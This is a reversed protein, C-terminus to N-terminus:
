ILGRAIELLSRLYDAGDAPMESLGIRSRYEFALEAYDSIMDSEALWNGIARLEVWLPTYDNRRLDEVLVDLRAAARSHNGSDVDHLRLHWCATRELEEVESPDFSNQDYAAEPM